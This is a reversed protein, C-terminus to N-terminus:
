AYIAAVPATNNAFNHNLRHLPVSLRTSAGSPAAEHNKAARARLERAPKFRPVYKASEHYIYGTRHIRKRKSPVRNLSFSGFGRIEVRGGRALAGSLGDLIAKISYEVEKAKLQPHRDGLLKTLQLRDM